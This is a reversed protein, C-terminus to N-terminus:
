FFSNKKGTFVLGMVNKSILMSLHKSTADFRLSLKYWLEKLLFQPPTSWCATNHFLSFVM